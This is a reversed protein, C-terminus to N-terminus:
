PELLIFRKNQGSFDFLPEFVLAVGTEGKAVQVTVWGEFEGGPYLIADLMPNPEVVLPVDYLVSASGTSKFFSGDIQMSNDETGIYRVHVKALIYEMGEAPPDNFQNAEQIKSWAEDGRIIELVSIEWDETIIKETSPAPNNREKGSDSAQIDALEPAVSISAGDDLAIFRIHDEDFNLLEDVVLILNGEGQGVLYASWGETEGSGFLKGDLPPDPPVALATFYKILRDGTVKFDGSGITHEDSDTYTSKVHLKVLLYEMGEPAPENFQNASQIAKWAEEGRVVELVQVDWNPAPVLESLPYPNSRSLGIPQPTPTPPVPTPNPTNTPEPPKTPEAQGVTAVSEPPNTAQGVQTPATTGSGCALSVAILLAIALFPLTVKRSPHYM